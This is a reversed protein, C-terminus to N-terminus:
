TVPAVLLRSLRWSFGHCAGRSATDATSPEARKGRTGHLSNPGYYDPLPKSSREFREERPWGSGANWRRSRLDPPNSSLSALFQASQSPSLSLPYIYCMHKAPSLDHEELPSGSCNLDHCCQLDKEPSSATPTRFPVM